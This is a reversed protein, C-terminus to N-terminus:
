RTKRRAQKIAGPPAGPRYRIESRGSKRQRNAARRYERGMNPLEQNALIAEEFVEARKQKPVKDLFRAADALGEPLKRGKARSKDIFKLTRRIQWRRLAPVRAISRGIAGRVRPRKGGDAQGSGQRQNM